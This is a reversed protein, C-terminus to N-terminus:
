ELPQISSTCGLPSLFFAMLLLDFVKPGNIPAGTTAILDLKGRSVTTGKLSTSELSSSTSIMNAGKIKKAGKTVMKTDWAAAIAIDLKPGGDLTGLFANVM